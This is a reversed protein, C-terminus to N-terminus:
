VLSLFSVSSSYINLVNAAVAGVAIGILVADGLAHGLPSTFNTTPNVSTGHLTGVGAGVIELVSCSVFVGLGAWLGVRRRDVTPPLYRTYDSAYPNWGVAYGYSIFLALIFAASSGGGQVMQPVGYRPGWSSLVGHTLSGLASGLVLALATPWFAGGFFAVPIVGVFLTAFELNPSMWTWFLDLPRGHRDGLPIFEVGGPEVAVVRDGYVGERVPIGPQIEATTTM